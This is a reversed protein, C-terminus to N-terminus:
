RSGLQQLRQAGTRFKMWAVKPQGDRRFFGLSGLFAGFRNNGQLRYYGGLKDVVPQPLDSMWNFTAAFVQERHAILTDFVVDVFRAQKEESSGVERSSSYGLEQFMTPKGGAAEIMRQMEAPVEDPDRFSFDPNTPYYNFSYFDIQDVIPAFTSHLQELRQNSFNVTFAAGPFQRSVTTRVNRLLTAYSGIENRHGSFYHDVENGLSIWRVRDHFRPGVAELLRKLQEAMKPDDFNGHKYKEPISRNNGDVVRLDLAIPLDYEQALAVRSDVADFRYNGASPEIEDWKPLFSTYTIGAEVAMAFRHHNSEASYGESPPPNADMSVYISRPTSSGRQVPMPAVTEVGRGASPPTPGSHYSSLVFAQAGEGFQVFGVGPAFTWYTNFKKRDTARFEICNEFRGASTSVTKNRTIVTVTGVSNSWSAGGAAGFDFYVTGPPLHAQGNGMDLGTLIVQDGRRDYYFDTPTWPNHWRVIWSSGSRGTVELTMSQGQYNLEWRSGTDLPLYDGAPLLVPSLAALLATKGFSRRAFMDSRVLKSIKAHAHRAM